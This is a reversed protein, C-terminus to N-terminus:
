GGGGGGAALHMIAYFKYRRFFAYLDLLDSVSKQYFRLLKYNHVRCDAGRTVALLHDNFRDGFYHWPLCHGSCPHVCHSYLSRDGDRLDPFFCDITMQQYSGKQRAHQQCDNYCCKPMYPLLAYLCSGPVSLRRRRSMRRKPSSSFPFLWGHDRCM